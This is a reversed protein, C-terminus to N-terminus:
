FNAQALSIHVHPLTQKFNIVLNLLELFFIVFLIIIIFFVHYFQFGSGSKYIYIKIMNVSDWTGYM